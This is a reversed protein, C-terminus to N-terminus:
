KSLIKEMMEILTQCQSPKLCQDALFIYREFQKNEFQWDMKKGTVIWNVSFKFHNSLKVLLDYPCESSKKYAAVMRESISFKSSIDKATLGSHKIVETFNHNFNSNFSFEKKDYHYNIKKEVDVFTDIFSQVKQHQSYKLKDTREGLEFLKIKRIFHTKDGILLYDVCVGYYKAIRILDKYRAFISRDEYSKVTGIGIGLKKSFENASLRHERRLTKLIKSFEIGM